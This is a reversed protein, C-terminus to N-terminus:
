ALHVREVPEAPEPGGPPDTRFFLTFARRAQGILMALGDITRLGAAEAAILLPTRLPDYVMDFVAADPAAGPLAALLHDPMAAAQAMGMPTANIVLGAGCIADIAEAMAAVRVPPPFTAAAAVPDRAVIVLEAPEAARVARVAARAAGGAGIVVNKRDRLDLAGVAESVGDVDSNYGVLREGERVVCNVAGIAAAGADLRDLWPIVAQKHPATVNCGRWDQDNRRGALFAGLEPATVRTAIFRGPLGLGQLWTGHISPSRSHGVPDGIVEAFPVDAM